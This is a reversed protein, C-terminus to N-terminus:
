GAILKDLLATLQAREAKTLPALAADQATAVVRHLRALRRKGGATLSVVNRRRDDPDKARSVLGADELEDVWRVIDSRDLRSGESLEAQSQPGRDELAVLLSYQRHHIGEAGLGERVAAAARLSGQALLFSPLVRIRQPVLSIDM